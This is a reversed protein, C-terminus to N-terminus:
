DMCRRVDGICAIVRRSGALREMGTAWAGQAHPFTTINKKKINQITKIWSDLIIKKFYFFIIKIYKLM